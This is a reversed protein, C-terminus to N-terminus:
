IRDESVLSSARIFIELECFKYLFAKGDSTTNLIPEFNWNTGYKIGHIDLLMGFPNKRSIEAEAKM